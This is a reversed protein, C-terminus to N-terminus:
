FKKERSEWTGRFTIWFSLAILKLDLWFSQNRIYLLDYKFKHRRSIDRAAYIQALGTLGPCISHRERYGAIEELRVVRGPNDLGLELSEVGSKPGQVKFEPSEVNSRPSRNEIEGPMLARPGVFSMDGVFINWLQPLEDMATARLLRGVRTVRPDDEEAQKPGYLKDADPVMTRFKLVGFVRGGQGVRRDRFFMPGGDDWKIALAIVVWLPMSGLLGAGAVVIDLTRKAWAQSQNWSVSRSEPAAPRAAGVKVNEM